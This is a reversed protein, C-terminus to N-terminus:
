IHILSLPVGTIKEFSQLLDEYDKNEGKTLIQPRCTKDYPHLAARLDIKGKKNTDLCKTMFKYNKIDDKIEFYKRYNKELVTAAFPM